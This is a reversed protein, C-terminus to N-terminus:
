ECEDLEADLDELLDTFQDETYVFVPDVVRRLDSEDECRLFRRYLYEDNLVWLSLERDSYETLDRKEM